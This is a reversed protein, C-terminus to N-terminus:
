LFFMSTLHSCASQIFVNGQKSFFVYAYAYAPRKPTRLLNKRNPQIQYGSRQCQDDFSLSKRTSTLRLVEVQSRPACNRVLSTPGCTLVAVKSEGMESAYGKMKSFLKPLDPRGFKLDPQMEPRINAEEFKSSDRERTLHFYNEMVEQPQGRVVLDPCFSIPLRLNTNKQFYEKDYDLVSTVMFLDRVSWIFMVKLGVFLVVTLFANRHWLDNM